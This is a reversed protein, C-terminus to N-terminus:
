VSRDDRNQDRAQPARRPMQDATRCRGDGNDQVGADTRQGNRGRLVVDHQDQQQCEQGTNELPQQPQQAKARQHIEDRMRHYETEGKAGGHHNGDTLQRVQQPQIQRALGGCQVAKDQKEFM